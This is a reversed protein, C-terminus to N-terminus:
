FFFEFTDPYKEWLPKMAPGVIKDFFAKHDNGAAYIVRIPMKLPAVPAFREDIGIIFPSINIVRPRKMYSKYEARLLANSCFLLDACALISKAYRRRWHFHQYHPGHPINLLDDDYKVCLFIGNRRAAKALELASLSMPRILFLMDTEELDHRSVLSEPKHFFTHEKNCASLIGVLGRLNVQNCGDLIDYSILIRSM